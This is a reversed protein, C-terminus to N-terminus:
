AKEAGTASNSRSALVSAPSEGNAIREMENETLDDWNINLSTQSVEHRDRRGWESPKRRELFWADAQWQPPVYQYKRELITEGTPTVRETESLLVRQGSAAARIRAVSGVEAEAEAKKLAEVFELFEGSQDQEGQVIWQRLLSYSIGGYNASADYTNGNRIASIIRARVDPTFKTPRGVARVIRPKPKVKPKVAKKAM